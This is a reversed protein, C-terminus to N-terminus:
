PTPVGGGGFTKAAEGGLAMAQGIGSFISGTSSGTQTKGAAALRNQEESQFLQTALGILGQRQSLAQQGLGSLFNAAQTQLGIRQFPQRMAFQRASSQRQAELASRQNFLATRLRSQIIPDSASRGMRSAQRAADRKQDSSFQRFAEFQPAFLDATVDQGMQIDSETPVGGSRALEQLAAGLDRQAGVGRSFDEAGFGQKLIKQIQSFQQNRVPNVLFQLQSPDRLNLQSTQSEEETNFMRNIGSM